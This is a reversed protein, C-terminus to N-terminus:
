ERAIATNERYRAERLYVRNRTRDQGIGKAETNTPMGGGECGRPGIGHRTCISFNRDANKIDYVRLRTGTSGGHVKEVNRM